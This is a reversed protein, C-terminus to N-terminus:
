CRLREIGGEANNGSEGVNLVVSGEETINSRSFFCSVIRLKGEDQGREGHACDNTGNSVVSCRFWFFVRSIPDEEEKKQM